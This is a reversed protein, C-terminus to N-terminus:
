KESLRFKLQVSKSLEIVDGDKLRVMQTSNGIDAFRQGGRYVITRGGTGGEGTYGGPLVKLYFGEGEVFFIAAHRRSVYQNMKKLAADPEEAVERIVINVGPLNQTEAGRGISFEKQRTSDLIYRTKALSGKGDNISIAAKSPVTAEMPPEPRPPKAAPKIQLWVNPIIVEAAIASPPKQTEVIWQARGVQALNHEDFALRLNKLFDDQRMIVQYVADDVWLVFVAEIEVSSSSFELPQFKEVLKDSVAQMFATNDGSRPPPASAGTASGPANPEDPWFFDKLKKLMTM